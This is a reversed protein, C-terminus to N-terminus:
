KFKRDDFKCKFECSIHKALTKSENIRTIINFFSVNLNETENPVFRDLSVVSPCYHLGQWHENPHLDIFTPQTMFKQIFKLIFM